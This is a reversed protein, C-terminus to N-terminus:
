IYIYIYIYIYIDKSQRSLSTLTCYIIECIKYYLKIRASTMEREENGKLRNEEGVKIM